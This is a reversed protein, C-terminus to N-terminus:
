VNEHTVSRSWRAIVLGAALDYIFHVVIPAFLSGTASALVQFLFGYVFVILVATWGQVLHALAFVSAAILAAPWFGAGWSVIMGFLVGRYIIEEAVGATLSVGVWALKEHRTRPVIMGLRDRRDASSMRWGIALAGFAAALLVVSLVVAVVGGGPSVLVPIDNSRAAWLALGVLVTQVVVTELYFDLREVRVGGDLARKSLWAAIPIFGGIVGVFLITSILSIM